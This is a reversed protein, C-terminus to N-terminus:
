NAKKNSPAKKTAKKSVDTKTGAYRAVNLAALTLKAANDMIEEASEASAALHCSVANVLEESSCQVFIPHPCNDKDFVFAFGKEVKMMNVDVDNAKTSTKPKTTKAKAM